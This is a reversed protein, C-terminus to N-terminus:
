SQINFSRSGDTSSYSSANQSLMEKEMSREVTQVAKSKLHPFRRSFDRPYQYALSSAAQKISAGNHLLQLAKRQRQEAMCSRPCKGFKWLIYRELTRVSVGSQEALASIAWNAKEMLEPWNQIHNLRTNM